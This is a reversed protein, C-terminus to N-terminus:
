ETDDEAYWDIRRTLRMVLALAGFLVLSGALLAYDEAQLVLYLLAFSAAMAGGAAITRRRTGLVSSMYLSVLLTTAAAGAGYAIAFPVVESLALLVLFFVAIGLGVM